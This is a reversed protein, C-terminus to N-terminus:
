TDAVIAESRTEEYRYNSGITNRQPSYHKLPLIM